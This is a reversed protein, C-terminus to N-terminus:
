GHRRRMMAGGALLAFAAATGPEPIVGSVPVTVPTADGVAVSFSGNFTALSGNPIVLQVLEISETAAIDFVARLSTEDEFPTEFAAGPASAIVTIDGPALLFQSDQLVNAGDGLFAGDSVSDFITELDFPNVQNLEGFFGVAASSGFDVAGITGESASFTLTFTTLSHERRRKRSATRPHSRAAP